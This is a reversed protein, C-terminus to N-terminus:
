CRQQCPAGSVIVERWGMTAGERNAGKNGGGGQNCGGQNCGQERGRGSQLRIEITHVCAGPACIKRRRCACSQCAHGCVSMICASKKGHPAARQLVEQMQELWPRGM